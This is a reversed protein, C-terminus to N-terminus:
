RPEPEAPETPTTRAAAIALRVKLARHDSGFGPLVESEVSEVASNLLVHDIQSHPRHAPWTRGLVARRWGPLLRVVGPGWLNFDGAVIAPEPGNPLSPRLARLNTVPGAFWLKSSTHLGVVHVRRGGIDLDVQLAKRVRARDRPVRGMALERRDLVPLRSAIALCWIGPGPRWGRGTTSSHWSEFRAIPVTEVQYGAAALGELMGPGSDPRFSEPLVLVDAELPLLADLV